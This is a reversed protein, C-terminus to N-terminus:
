IERLSGLFRAMIPGLRDPAETPLMHGYGQVIVRRAGRVLTALRDTHRRSILDRQGAMVLTPAEIQALDAEAIRPQGVMLGWIRARRRAAKSVLGAASLGVWAAVIVIRAGLRVGAPRYNGGILVLARVLAPRHIALEMAVNAGDSFGVIVAKGDALGKAEAATLAQEVDKALRPITLPAQGEPTRGHGRAELAIVRMGDLYPVVQDFVRADEGNGHLLVVTPGEGRLEATLPGLQTTHPGLQTTL